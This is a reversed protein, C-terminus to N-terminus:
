GIKFLGSVTGDTYFFASAGAPLSITIAGMRVSLSATGSNLVAFFRKGLPFDINRAVSNGSCRFLFYNVFEALSVTKNGASLNVPLFDNMAAELSRLAENVTLYQNVQNNAVEPIQLIPTTM